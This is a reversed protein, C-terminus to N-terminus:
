DHRAGLTPLGLDPVAEIVSQIRARSIPLRFGSITLVERANQSISKIRSMNVIASRHVRVFTQGRLMGDLDSLVGRVFFKRDATMLHLYNGETLACEIERAVLIVIESGLKLVLRLEQADGPAPAVQAEGRIWEALHELKLQEKLRAILSEVRKATYPKLLYDYAHYEFASVAHASHATVFVIKPPDELSKVVSLGDVGPMRIDVFAVDPRSSRILEAASRGDQAEGIIEIEPIALLINHLKTLAPLEDEAILARIKM